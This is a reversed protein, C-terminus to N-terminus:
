RIEQLKPITWGSVLFISISNTTRKRAASPITCHSSVAVMKTYAIIAKETPVELVRHIYAIAARYVSWDEPLASQEVVTVDLGGEERLFKALVEMQPLEDHVILIKNSLDAPAFATALILLFFAFSKLM